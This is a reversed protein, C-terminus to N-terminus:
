SGPRWCCGRRILTRSPLTRSPCPRPGTGIVPVTIVEALPPTVEDPGWQWRVRVPAPTSIGRAKAECRWTDLMRQAFHDAAAMVQVASAPVATARCGKWWWPLLFALLSVMLTAVGLYAAYVTATNVPNGSTRIERVIWVSVTVLVLAGLLAVADRRRSGAVMVKGDTTRPM